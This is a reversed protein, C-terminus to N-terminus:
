LAHVVGRSRQATARHLEPVTTVTMAALALDLLRAAQDLDHAGLAEYAMLCLQHIADSTQTMGLRGELAGDGRARAPDPRHHARVPRLGRRTAAGPPRRPRGRRAVAPGGLALRGRVDAARVGGRGDGRDRGGRGRPGAAPIPGPAR